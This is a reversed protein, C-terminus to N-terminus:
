SFSRATFFQLPSPYSLGEADQPGTINRRNYSLIIGLFFSRTRAGVVSRTSVHTHDRWLVFDVIVGARRALLQGLGAFYSENNRSGNKVFERAISTSQDLFTTSAKGCSEFARLLRCFFKAIGLVLADRVPLQQILGGINDIIQPWCVRGNKTLTNRPSEGPQFSRLRNLADRDESAWFANIRLCPAALL